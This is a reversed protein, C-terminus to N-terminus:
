GKSRRAKRRRANLDANQRMTEHRGMKKPPSSKISCVRILTMLRNLHWKECEFPIHYVTMWYYIIEATIVERSPRGGGKSFTTATMPDEIYKLIAETYAEPLTEYVYDPVTTPRVTMCRFYDLIEEKSKEVSSIYPKKWRREWKSISLLSHELKLTIADLKVFCEHIPDWGDEKPLRIVLM